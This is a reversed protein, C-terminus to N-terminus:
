RTHDINDFVKEELTNIRREKEIAQDSKEPTNTNEANINRLETQIKSMGNGITAGLSKVSNLITQFSSRHATQTRYNYPITFFFGSLIVSMTVRDTRRCAMDKPIKWLISTQIKTPMPKDMYKASFSENGRSSTPNSIKIKDQPEATVGM